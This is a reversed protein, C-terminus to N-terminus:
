RGGGHLPSWSNRLNMSQHLMEVELEADQFEDDWVFIELADPEQTAM